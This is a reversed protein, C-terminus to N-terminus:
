SRSTPCPGLRSNLVMAVTNLLMGPPRTQPVSNKRNMTKAAMDVTSATHSFMRAMVRSRKPQLRGLPLRMQPITTKRSPRVM